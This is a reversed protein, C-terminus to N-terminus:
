KPRSCIQFSFWSIKQCFNYILDKTRSYNGKSNADVDIQSSFGQFEFFKGRVLASDGDISRLEVIMRDLKLCLTPCKASSQVPLLNGTVIVEDSYGVTVAAIARKPRARGLGLFSVPFKSFSFAIEILSDFCDIAFDRPLGLKAYGRSHIPNWPKCGVDHPREIRAPQKGTM